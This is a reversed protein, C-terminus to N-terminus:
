AMPVSRATGLKFPVVRIGPGCRDGVLARRVEAILREETLIRRVALPGFPVDLLSVALLDAETFQNLRRFVSM